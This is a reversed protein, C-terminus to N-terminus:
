AGGSQKITELVRAYLLERHLDGDKAAHQAFRAALRYAAPRGHEDLLSKALRVAEADSSPVVDRDKMREARDLNRPSSVDM